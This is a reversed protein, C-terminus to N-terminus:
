SAIVGGRQSRPVEASSMRRLEDKHGLGKTTPRHSCYSDFTARVRRGEQRAKVLNRRPLSNGALPVKLEALLFDDSPESLFM